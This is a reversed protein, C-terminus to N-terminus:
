DEHPSPCPERRARARPPEVERQEPQRYREHRQEVDVVKRREEPDVLGDSRRVREREERDLRDGQPDREPPPRLQHEHGECSEEPVDRPVGPYEREEGRKRKIVARNVGILHREPHERGQEGQRGAVDTAAPWPS